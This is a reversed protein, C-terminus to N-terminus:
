IGVLMVNDRKSHPNKLGTLVKILSGGRMWWNIFQIIAAAIGIAGAQILFLYEENHQADAHTIFQSAYTLLISGTLLSAFALTIFGTEGILYYHPSRSQRTMLGRKYLWYSVIALASIAWAIINLSIGAKVFNLLNYSSGEFVPETFLDTKVLAIIAYIVSITTLTFVIWFFVYPLPNSRLEMAM